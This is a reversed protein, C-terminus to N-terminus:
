SQPGTKLVSPLQGLIGMGPCPKRAKDLWHHCSLGQSAAPAATDRTTSAGTADCVQQTLANMATNGGLFGTGMQSPVGFETCVWNFLDKLSDLQDANMGVAKGTNSVEVSLWSRNGPDHQANAIHDASIFQIVQGDRDIGFHASASNSNWTQVCHFAAMHYADAPPGATCHVALGSVSALRGGICNEQLTPCPGMTPHRLALYPIADPFLYDSSPIPNTAYQAAWSAILHNKSPTGGGSVVSLASTYRAGLNTLGFIQDGPKLGTASYDFNWNGADTSDLTVGGGESVVTGSRYVRVILEENDPGGGWLRFKAKGAADTGITSIGANTKPNKFNAM